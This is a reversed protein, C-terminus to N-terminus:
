LLQLAHKLQVDDKPDAPVYAASGSGKDDEEEGKVENEDLRYLYTSGYFDNAFPCGIVVVSGDSSIDM